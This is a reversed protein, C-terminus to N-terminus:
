TVPVDYCLSNIAVGSATTVTAALASAQIIRPIASGIDVDAPASASRAAVSIIHLLHSATCSQQLQLRLGPEVGDDM